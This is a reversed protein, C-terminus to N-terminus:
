SVLCCTIPLMFGAFAAGFTHPLTSNPPVLLLISPEQRLIGLTCIRDKSSRKYSLSDLFATPNTGIFVMCHTLSAEYSPTHRVRWEQHSHKWHEYSVPAGKRYELWRVNGQRSRSGQLSCPSSLKWPHVGLRWSQFSYTTKLKKEVKKERM